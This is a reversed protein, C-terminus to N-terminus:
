THSSAPPSQSGVQSGSTRNAKSINSLEFPQAVIRVLHKADACALPACGREDAAVPASMDRQALAETPQGVGPGDRPDRCSLQDQVTCTAGRLWPLGPHCRLYRDDEFVIKIAARGVLGHSEPEAARGVLDVQVLLVGPREALLQCGEDLMGATGAASLAARM